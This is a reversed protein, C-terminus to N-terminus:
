MRASLPKVLTGPSTRLRHISRGTGRYYIQIQANEKVCGIMIYIPKNERKLNRAAVGYYETQSGFSMIGSDADLYMFFCDIIGDTTSHRPFAGGIATAKNYVRHRTLDMGFSRSTMGILTKSGKVFLPAEDTGVGISASTGRMGKPWIVEFVHKGSTFPRSWRAGDTEFGGKRHRMVTNSNLITMGDSIGEFGDQSYEPKLQLYLAWANEPAAIM